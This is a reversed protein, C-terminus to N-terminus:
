NTFLQNLFAAADREDEKAAEREALARAEQEAAAQAVSVRFVSVSSTYLESLSFDPEFPEDPECGPEEPEELEEDEEEEETDWAYNNDGWELVRQKYDEFDDDDVGYWEGYEDMHYWDWGTPLDNLINLLDRWSNNRAWGGLCSENIYDDMGDESYIDECEYCGHEDCFDILEGVTDINDIFEQRTM